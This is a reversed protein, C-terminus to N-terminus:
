YYLYMRSLKVRCVALWSLLLLAFAIFTVLFMSHVPISFKSDDMANRVTICDLRYYTHVVLDCSSGWEVYSIINSYILEM